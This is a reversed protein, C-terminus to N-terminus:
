YNPYVYYWVNTELENPGSYNTTIVTHRVRYFGASPFQYISSGQLSASIFTDLLVAADNYVEITHNTVAETVFGGTKVLNVSIAVEQGTDSNVSQTTLYMEGLQPATGVGFQGVTSVSKATFPALAAGLDLTANVRRNVTVPGPTEVIHENPTVAAAGTALNANFTSGGGLSPFLTYTNSAFSAIAEAFSFYNPIVNKDDAYVTYRGVAAPDDSGNLRFGPEISIFGNETAIGIDYTTQASPKGLSPEPTVIHKVDWEIPVGATAVTEGRSTAVNQKDIAFAGVTGSFAGSPVPGVVALTIGLAIADGPNGEVTAIIDGPDGDKCIIYQHTTEPLAGIVVGESNTSNVGSVIVNNFNSEDILVNSNAPENNAVQPCCDDAFIAPKDQAGFLGSRDQVLGVKKPYKKQAM